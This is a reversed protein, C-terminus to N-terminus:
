IMITRAGIQCCAILLYWKLVHWATYTNLEMIYKVWQERLSTSIIIKCTHKKFENWLISIKIVKIVVLPNGECLALLVSLTEM